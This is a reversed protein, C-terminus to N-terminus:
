ASTALEVLRRVMKDFDLGAAAAGKPFLSQDTLGPITNIELVYLEDDPAVMIDVRSLHRAGTLKHVQEAIRVAEVQVKAPVHQPPCLEATAGNYKNEYDFEGGEPPIIEVAPLASDGLVPVTIEIGEILEELLMQKHWGLMEQALATDYPLKRVVMLDVSSGDEVPKLVFPRAALKSQALTKATVVESDPTLIGNKRLLEKTRVKDFCLASSASGAGLFAVGSAELRKQVEGNEGSGGHLIPLVVDYGKAREVLEDMRGQPDFYGVEYGLHECAARVGAASRLSVERETSDGGGLVLVKM